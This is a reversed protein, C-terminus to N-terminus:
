ADVEINLSSFPKALYKKFQLFEVGDAEIADNTLPSGSGDLPVPRSPTQGSITIPVLRGDVVKEFGADLIIHNWSEADGAHWFEYRVRWYKMAGKYRRSGTIPKCLWLRYDGEWIFDDDNITFRFANKEQPNYTLENRELILTTGGIERVPGPDFPQGASNLIPTRDHDQAYLAVEERTWAGWEQVPPELGPDNAAGSGTGPNGGGEPSQGLRPDGTISETSYECTVVWFTWDDEDQVPDISRCIALMDLEEGGYNTYSSYLAPIAESTSPDAAFMVEIPGDLKSNTFVHFVRTYKRESGESLSGRRGKHIERVKWVAM